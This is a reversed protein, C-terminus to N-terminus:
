GVLPASGSILIVQGETQGNDPQSVGIPLDRM